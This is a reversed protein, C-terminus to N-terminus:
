RSLSMEDSRLEGHVMKRATKQLQIERLRELCNAKIIIKVYSNVCIYVFLWKPTIQWQFDYFADFASQQM